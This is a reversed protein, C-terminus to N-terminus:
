SLLEVIIFIQIAQAVQNAQVTETFPYPNVTFSSPFRFRIRDFALNQSVHSQGAGSIM